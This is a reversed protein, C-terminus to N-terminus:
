ATLLLLLDYAPQMRALDAAIRSSLVQYEAQITNFLHDVVRTFLNLEIILRQQQTEDYTSIYGFFESSSTYLADIIKYDSFVLTASLTNYSNEDNLHLVNDFMIDKYLYQQIDKYIDVDPHNKDSIKVLGNIDKLRLQNEDLTLQLKNYLDNFNDRISVDDYNFLHWSMELYQQSSRELQNRLYLWEDDLSSIQRDVQVYLNMITDLLKQSM